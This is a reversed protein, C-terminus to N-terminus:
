KKSKKIKKFILTLCALISVGTAAHLLRNTKLFNIRETRKQKEEWLEKAKQNEEEIQENQAILNDLNKALEQYNEISSHSNLVTLIGCSTSRRIEVGSYGFKRSGYSVQAVQDGMGYDEHVNETQLNANTQFIYESKIEEPVNDMLDEDVRITITVASLDKISISVDSNNPPILDVNNHKDEDYPNIEVEIITGTYASIPIKNYKKIKYEPQFEVCAHATDVSFFLFTSAVYIFVFLKKLINNKGVM